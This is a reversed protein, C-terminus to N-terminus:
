CVADTHCYVRSDIHQYYLAGVQTKEFADDYMCRGVYQDNVLVQAYYDNNSNSVSFIDAVIRPTSLSLLVAAALINLLTTSFKM